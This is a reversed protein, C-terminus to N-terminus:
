IMKVIKYALKVSFENQFNMEILSGTEQETKM